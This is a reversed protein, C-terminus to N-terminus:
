CKKSIKNKNFAKNIYQVSDYWNDVYYFLKRSLDSHSFNALLNPNEM